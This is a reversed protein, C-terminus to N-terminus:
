DTYTFEIRTFTQSALGRRRHHQELLAIFEQPTSGPYGERAVDEPTIEGLLSRSVSVVRLPERIQEVTEGKRLGMSKVVPRVLDGPRLHLWGPRRTVTKSGDRVQPTTFAFAMNRM